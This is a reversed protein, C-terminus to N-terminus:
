AAEIAAEAMAEEPSSPGPTPQRLLFTWLSMVLAVACAVAFAGTHRVQYAFGAIVPGAVRALSGLGHYLGFVVGQERPDSFKSILSSVTPQQLSRGTANTAGALCLLALSTWWATGIFGLM